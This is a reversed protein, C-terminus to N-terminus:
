KLESLSLYVHSVIEADNEWTAGGKADIHWVGGESHEGQGGQYLCESAGAPPFLTAPHIHPSPKLLTLSQGRPSAASLLSQSAKDAWGGIASSAVM